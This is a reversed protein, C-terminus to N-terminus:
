HENECRKNYDEYNTNQADYGLEAFAFNWDSNVRQHAKKSKMRKNKQYSLNKEIYAKINEKASDFDKINLEEYIRALEKLPQKELEEYKVEALQGAPILDKDRFYALMLKQYNKITIDELDHSRTSQLAIISTIKNIYESTSDFVDYPNRRIHIFRAKPFLELLIKIRATNIPSKLILRKSGCRLSAIKLIKIYAKKFKERFKISYKEFDIAQEVASGSERPFLLSIYFGRPLMKSLLIEDEQPSGLPWNMNDMPRKIPFILSLLKQLTKGGILSCEPAISQYTSIFGLEKDQAMLNHLYTTGSRWHGIIFIPAKDLKANDIRKSWIATELLRLPMSFLSLGIILLVRPYYRPEISTSKHIFALINTFRAFGTLGVQYGIKELADRM